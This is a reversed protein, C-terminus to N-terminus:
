KVQRLPAFDSRSLLGASLFYFFYYVLINNKLYVAILLKGVEYIRFSNLFSKSCKFIM